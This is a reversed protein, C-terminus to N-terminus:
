PTPGHRESSHRTRWHGPRRCRRAYRGRGSLLRRDEVRGSAPASSDGWSRNVCRECRGRRSAVRPWPKPSVRSSRHTDRAVVSTAPAARRQDAGDDADPQGGAPVAGDHPIRHASRASSHTASGCRRSSSGWAMVTVSAVDVTEVIAGAQMALMLCSRVPQGDVAVTCAGCVGHECGLHTGTLGLHDRLSRPWPRAVRSWRASMGVTSGLTIERM